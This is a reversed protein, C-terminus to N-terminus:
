MCLIREPENIATSMMPATKGKVTVLLKMVAKQLAEQVDHIRGMRIM